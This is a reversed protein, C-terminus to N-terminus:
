SFPWSPDDDQGDVHRALAGVGHVGHVAFGHRQTARSTASLSLMAPTIMVEAFFVKKAPPSRLSSIL